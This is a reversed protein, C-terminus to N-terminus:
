QLVALNGDGGGGGGLSWGAMVDRTSNPAATLIPEVGAILMVATGPGSAKGTTTKVM